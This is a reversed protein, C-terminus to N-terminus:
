LPPTEFISSLLDSYAFLAKIVVQELKAEALLEAEVKVLV